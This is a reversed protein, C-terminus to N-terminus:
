RLIEEPPEQGGVAEVVPLAKVCAQPETHGLAWPDRTLELRGLVEMEGDVTPTHSIMMSCRTAARM